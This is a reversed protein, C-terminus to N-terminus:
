CGVACATGGAAGRAGGDGGLVWLSVKNMRIKAEEVTEDALVICVTDKRKKGQVPALLCAPPPHARRTRPAASRGDREHVPPLVLSPIATEGTAIKM